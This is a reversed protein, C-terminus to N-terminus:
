RLIGLVQFPNGNLGMGRGDKVKINDAGEIFVGETSLV